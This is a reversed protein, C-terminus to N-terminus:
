WISKQLIVAKDGNRILFHGEIKNIDYNGPPAFSGASGQFSGPPGYSPAAMSPPAAFQQPMGGSTVIILYMITLCLTVRNM